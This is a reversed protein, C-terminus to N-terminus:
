LGLPGPPGRICLAGRRFRTRRFALHRAGGSAFCRVYHISGAWARIVPREGALHLVLAEPAQWRRRGRRAAGSCTDCRVQCAMIVFTACTPLDIADVVRRESRNRQRSLSWRFSRDRLPAVGEAVEGLRAPGFLPAM